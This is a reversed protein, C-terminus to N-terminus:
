DARVSITGGERRMAGCVDANERRAAGLNKFVLARAFLPRLSLRTNEAGAAKHAFTFFCVLLTVVPVGFM